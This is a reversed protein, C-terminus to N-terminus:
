ELMVRREKRSPTEARYDLILKCLQWRGGNCLSDDGQGTRRGEDETTQRRGEKM